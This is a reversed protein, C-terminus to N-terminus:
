EAANNCNLLFNNKKYTNHLIINTFNKFYKEKLLITEDTSMDNIVIIEYNIELEANLISNICDYTYNFNNHVPIIISVDFLYLKIIFYIM